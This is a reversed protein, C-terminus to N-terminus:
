RDPEQKSNAPVTECSSDDPRSERIEENENVGLSIKLATDVKKMQKDKLTGIYRILRKRHITRIQESLIVSDKILGCKRFISVHVPLKPKDASTLPVIIITPSYFNATNNQVVLVPRIGAQESGIADGLDALYLEGRRIM